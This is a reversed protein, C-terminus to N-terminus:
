FAYDMKVIFPDNVNEQVFVFVPTLERLM